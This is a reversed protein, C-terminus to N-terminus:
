EESSKKKVLASIQDILEPLMEIVREMANSAPEAIPLLRVSDGKLILFAVPTITIGAGSAGGFTNEKTAPYGKTAFDTGGGAYGIKIKSVPIISVGDPTTIADGIITNVDVMSRIKEMTEGLLNPLPHSMIAAGGKKSKPNHFYAAASFSARCLSDGGSRIRTHNGQNRGTGNSRRRAFDCDIQVMERKVRFCQLIVPRVLHVAAQVEGYRIACRAPDEDGVIMEFRLLEVTEKELIKGLIVAVERWHQRLLSLRSEKKTPSPNGQAKPAPTPKKGSQHTKKWSLPIGGVTFTVDWDGDQWTAHIGVKLWALGAVIAALVLFIVLATM